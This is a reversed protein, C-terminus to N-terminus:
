NKYLFDIEQIKHFTKLHGYIECRNCTWECNYLHHCTFLNQKNDFM